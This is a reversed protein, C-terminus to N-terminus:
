CSCLKQNFRRLYRLAQPIGVCEYIFTCMFQCKGRLLYETIERNCGGLIVNLM